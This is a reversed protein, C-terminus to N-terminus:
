VLISLYLNRLASSSLESNHWLVSYIGSVVECRKRLCFLRNRVDALELNLYEPSLLSCEMMVLPRIRLSLERGEVADFAPYEFCTGCRFGPHDAYGLTSDYTMGAADWARMTTPHKWRLYHMRGGWESQEIGEEACIVRLRHAEAALTGPNMYTNYSPHLGIEHGREHIRRMLRRIAPHEPEYDADHKADTRGCIFYFASTLGREESVNMIWDFTNYPDVPHLVDPSTWRVLPAKAVAAISGRKLLDGGVARMFKRASGFQYRSPRDVDHSVQIQFQRERREITPWLSKIASWLIEVYEDIIPRDLFGEQYALSAWAPFRDHEDRGPTVIEEYRTLMFFASGFIDIPLRIGDADSRAKPESDGYIVPVTRGTLTIELGLDETNWKLLPLDPLSPSALWESTPTDLICDPMTIARNPQGLLSLRVDPRQSPRHVWDLGLFKGLIVRLIYEREVPRSVPTEVLLTM